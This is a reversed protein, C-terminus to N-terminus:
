AHDLAQELDAILDYTDEIGVSIRLLDDPVPSKPGEVTARHEILSEVGGLSTAPLFLKVAKAVTLAAEAGGKVCISMMAGFGNDMQRKAIEHGPHEVLGPYLVRELKSHGDFHEAIKLASACSQAVQLYMTRMGHLVLSAEFPDLIAGGLHRSKRANAWLADEVATVLAGAVVDSHGNLYKTASHM